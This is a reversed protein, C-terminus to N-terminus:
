QVPGSESTDLAAGARHIAVPGKPDRGRNENLCTLKLILHRCLGHAARHGHLTHSIYAPILPECGFVWIRKDCAQGHPFHHRLRSTLEDFGSPILNEGQQLRRLDTPQPPETLEFGIRPAIADDRGAFDRWASKHNQCAPGLDSVACHRSM